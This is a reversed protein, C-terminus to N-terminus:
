LALFVLPLLAGLALCLAVLSPRKGFRVALAVGLLATAIMGLACAVAAVGFLTSQGTKPSRGPLTSHTHPNSLEHLVSRVASPENKPVDNLRFVQWAGSACFYLILPAFLCGLYLHLQRLTKM